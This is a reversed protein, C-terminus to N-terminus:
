GGSVQDGVFTCGLFECFSQFFGFHKLEGLSHQQPNSGTIVFTEIIDEPCPNFFSNVKWSNNVGQADSNDDQLPILVCHITTRPFLSKIPHINNKLSIKRFKTLQHLGNRNTQVIVDNHIKFTFILFFVQKITSPKFHASTNSVATSSRGTVASWFDLSFHKSM